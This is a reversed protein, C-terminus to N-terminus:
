GATPMNTLAQYLGKVMTTLRDIQAQQWITHIYLANVLSNNDGINEYFGYEPIESAFNNKINNVDYNFDFYANNPAHNFDIRSGSYQGLYCKDADDDTGQIRSSYISIGTQSASMLQSTTVYGSTSNELTEIRSDIGSVTSGLSDLQSKTAFTEGKAYRVKSGSVSLETIANGSGSGTVGDLGPNIGSITTQIGSVTSELTGVRSEIGSVGLNVITTNFESQKVFTEGKTYSIKSGSASLATIANGSGSSILENFGPNIGSITTQIGSVTSELTGVRTEIGSVGLNGITTNFESQKVFTEGKTYSIKSGSASLSTIANGSGSGTVGDLGSSSTPGTQSAYKIAKLVDATTNIITPESPNSISTWTAGGWHIDIANTTFIASAVDNSVGSRNVNNYDEGFIQNINNSNFNGLPGSSNPSRKIPLINSFAVQEKNYQGM